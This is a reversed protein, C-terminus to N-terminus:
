KAFRQSIKNLFPKIQDLNPIPLSDMPMGYVISMAFLFAYAMKHADDRTCLNSQLVSHHHCHQNLYSDFFEKQMLRTLNARTMTSGSSALFHEALQQVGYM